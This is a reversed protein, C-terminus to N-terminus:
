IYYIRDCQEIHKLISIGRFPILNEFSASTSQVMEEEAKFLYYCNAIIKIFKDLRKRGYFHRVLVQNDPYLLLINKIKLFGQKKVSTEKKSNSKLKLIPHLIEEKNM